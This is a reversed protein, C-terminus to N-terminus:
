RAKTAEISDIYVDLYDKPHIGMSVFFSLYEFLLRSLYEIDEFIYDSNTLESIINVHNYEIDNFTKKCQEKTNIGHPIDFAEFFGIMELFADNIDKRPYSNAQYYKNDLGERIVKSIKSSLDVESFLKYNGRLNNNNDVLKRYDINMKVIADYFYDPYIDMKNFADLVIYLNHAMLNSIKDIDIEDRIIMTYINGMNTNLSVLINTMENEPIRDPKKLVEEEIKNNKRIKSIEANM